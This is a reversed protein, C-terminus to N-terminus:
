RASDYRSTLMKVAQRLVASTSCGTRRAIEDVVAGDHPDLCAQYTKKNRAM